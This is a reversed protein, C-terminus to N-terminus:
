RVASANLPQDCALSHHVPILLLEVALGASLEDGTRQSGMKGPVLDAPELAPRSPELAPRAPGGRRPSASGTLGELRHLGTALFLWLKTTSFDCTCRQGFIGKVCSEIPQACRVELIILAM